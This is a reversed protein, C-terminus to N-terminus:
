PQEARDSASLGTLTGDARLRQYAKRALRWALSQGHWLELVSYPSGDSLTDLDVVQIINPHTLKSAIEAERRFGM